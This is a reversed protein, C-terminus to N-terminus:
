VHARGIEAIIINANFSDQGDPNSALANLSISGGLLNEHSISHEMNNDLIRWGAAKAAKQSKYLVHEVNYSWNDFTEMAQKLAAGVVYVKAGSKRELLALAYSLASVFITKGNKRPIFILAEKVLRESTGAKFFVLMGYVCLKEWPELLFPKGRLPRGDLSEGQRHRFTGEIIDIVFDADKTRVEYRADQAMRVFRRAALVRDRNAVIRGSLIGDVYGAVEEAHRGPPLIM